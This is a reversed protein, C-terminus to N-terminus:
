AGIASSGSHVECLTGTQGRLRSGIPNRRCKGTYEYTQVLPKFPETTQMKAASLAYIICHIAATIMPEKHTKVDDALSNFYNRLQYLRLRQSDTHNIPEM